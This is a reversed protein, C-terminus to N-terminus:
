RNWLDKAVENLGLSELKEKTPVGESTYGRIKYYEDLMKEYKDKNLIAGKKPGDPVPENFFREPPFDSERGLGYRRLIAYELTYVRDGCEMIDKWTYDIGTVASVLRAMMLPGIGLRWSTVFVCMGLSAAAAILDQYYKVLYAKGEYKEPDLVDCEFWKKAIELPIGLVRNLFEPGKAKYWTKAYPEITPMGRLHDAGRTATAYQLANGTLARYEVSSQTKGKVHIVYYALKNEPIGKNRAIKKAAMLAGDALIKGFGERNAIKKVLEIAVEMNGWELILGDTDDENILGDQWWHMSTSIANGTEITDLGLSNCMNNIYLIPALDKNGMRAGFANITEYEAGEGRTNMYPGNRVVYYHSCHVPCSFCGKSKIVYNEVFFPGDQKEIEPFTSYLWNKVPLGGVLSLVGSLIPTGYTSFDKYVLHTLIFSYTEEFIKEFEEERAVKIGRTGRVAVGKLNKSGFVAGMGCGAVVRSSNCTVSSMAVLKEGAPGITITQAQPDGVEERMIRESEWVSRGAISTADRIEICDDEILIYSLKDAKGTIVIVDYGAYKLEPGFHGGANGDSFIGTLPSKVVSITFRGTAPASTGTLLGPAIFITNEPSYADISTDLADYILKSNFGRGGLFAKALNKSLPEVRIKRKTLHIRAIKGAWGYM